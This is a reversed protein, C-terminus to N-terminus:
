VPFLEFASLVSQLANRTFPRTIAGHAGCRAGDGTRLECDEPWLIIFTTKVGPHFSIFYKALSQPLEFEVFTFDFHRSRLLEGATGPVDTHVVDFELNSMLHALAVRDPRESLILCAAM